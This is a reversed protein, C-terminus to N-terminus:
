SYECFAIKRLESAVSLVAGATVAVLAETSRPARQSEM